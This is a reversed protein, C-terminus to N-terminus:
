RPIPKTKRVADDRERSLRRQERALRSLTPSPVDAYRRVNPGGGGTLNRPDLPDLGDDAPEARKGARQVPAEPPQEPALVEDASPPPPPLAAGEEPASAAQAADASGAGGRQTVGVVIAAAFCLVGLLVFAYKRRDPSTSRRRGPLVALDDDELSSPAVVPLSEPEPVVQPALSDVSAPAVSPLAVEDSHLATRRPLAAASMAFAAVPAAHSPSAAPAPPPRSPARPLLSNKPTLDRTLWDVLVDSERQPPAVSAP